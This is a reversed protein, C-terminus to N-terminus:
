KGEEPCCFWQGVIEVRDYHECHYAISKSLQSEEYNRGIMVSGTVLVIVFGVLMAALFGDDM